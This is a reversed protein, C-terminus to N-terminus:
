IYVTGERYHRAGGPDRSGYYASAKLVTKRYGPSETDPFCMSAPATLDREYGTRNTPRSVLVDRGVFCAKRGIPFRQQALYAKFRPL